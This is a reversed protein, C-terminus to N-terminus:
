FPNEHRLLWRVGGLIFRAIEALERSKHPSKYGNRMRFDFSLQVGLLLRLSPPLFM